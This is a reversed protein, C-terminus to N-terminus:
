ATETRDPTQAPCAVLRSDSFLLAPDQSLEEFAEVRGILVTHDGAPYTAALSCDFAAVGDLLVPAGSHAAPRWPRGAFGEAGAPRASDAFWRADPEQHAALVTAAFSGSRLIQERLRSRRGLAVLIMLPDMSATAFANVTTGHPEGDLVTTIVTVGTPFRGAARRFSRRAAEDSPAATRPATDLGTSM